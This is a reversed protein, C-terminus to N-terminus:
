GPVAGRHHRPQEGPTRARVALATGDLVLDGLDLVEGDASLTGRRRVQGVFSVADAALEWRTAQVRVGDFEFRGDADTRRTMSTRRTGPGVIELVVPLAVIATLGQPELLRGRVVGAPEIVLLLDDTEGNTSIEGSVVGRLGLHTTSVDYLGIAV